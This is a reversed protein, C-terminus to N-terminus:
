QITVTGSVTRGTATLPFLQAIGGAGNDTGIPVDTISFKFTYDGTTNLVNFASANAGLKNKITTLLANFDVSINASSAQIVNATVNTAPGSVTLGNSDVGSYTFAAGADVTASVAGAGDTVITVPVSATIQRKDTAAAAAIDLTFTTNYTAAAGTNDVLTFAFTTNAAPTGTPATAVGTSAITFTSAGFTFTNGAMALGKLTTQINATVATQATALATQDVTAGSSSLNTALAAVDVNAASTAITATAGANSGVPKGQEVDKALSDILTDVDTAAGNNVASQMIASAILLQQNAEGSELPNLSALDSGAPLGLATTVAADSNKIVTAPDANPNAALAKKAINASITSALNPNATVANSGTSTAPLVIIASASGTKTSGDTEDLYNGSITVETLGGWDANLTYAGTDDTTTTQVVTDTATGDANLKTATVTAGTQFPGKVANGLVTTSSSSSSGCGTLMGMALAALIMMLKKIIM